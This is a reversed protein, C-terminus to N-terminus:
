IIIIIIYTVSLTSFNVLAVLSDNHDLASLWVTGYNQLKLLVPKLRTCQKILLSYYILNVEIPLSYSILQFEIPLSYYISHFKIFLSNYYYILHIEKIHIWIRQILRKHDFYFFTFAGSECLDIWKASAAFM